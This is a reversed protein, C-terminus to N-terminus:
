RAACLFVSESRMCIRQWSPAASIGDRKEARLFHRFYAAGFSLPTNNQTNKKLFVQAADEAEIERQLQRAAAQDREMQDIRELAAHLLTHSESEAKVRLSESEAKSEAKKDAQSETECKEQCCCLVFFFVYVCV